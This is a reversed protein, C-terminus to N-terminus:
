AIKEEWKGGKIEPSIYGFSQLSCESRGIFTQKCNSRTSRVEKLYNINKMLEKKLLNHALDEITKDQKNEAM